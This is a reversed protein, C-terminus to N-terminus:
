TNRGFTEACFALTERIEQELAGKASWGTRELKSTPIRFTPAPVQGPRAQGLTIGIDTGLIEKAERQVIQAIGLMSVSEGGALNYVPFSDRNDPLHELGHLVAKVVDSMAVFNRVPTGDSALTLHREVVAQRCLDNAILMWANVDKHAPAGLANSLRFIVGQIDGRRHYDVVIDEAEKHTRAYVSQPDPIKDEGLEGMLPTGYVHVTSFYLFTKVGNAVASSLLRDVADVNCQLARGPDAECDKHNLAALHVVSAVSGAADRISVDNALDFFVRDFTEEELARGSHGRSRLGLVPKWVVSSGLFRAIRGGLYGSAGTILVKSMSTSNTLNLARAIGRQVLLALFLTQKRNSCM